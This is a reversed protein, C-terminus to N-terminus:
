KCAVGEAASSWPSSSEIVRHTGSKLFGQEWLNWPIEKSKMSKWPNWPDSTPRRQVRFAAGLSLKARNWSTTTEDISVSKISKWLIKHIEMSKMPRLNAARAFSVSGRFFGKSSQLQASNWRNAYSEYMKMRDWPIGYSEPTPPKGAKCVSHQEQLCRQEIGSPQQQQM